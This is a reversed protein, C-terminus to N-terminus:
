VWKAELKEQQLKRLQSRLEENQNKLEKVEKKMQDYRDQAIALGIETRESKNLKERLSKNEEALDLVRKIIEESM